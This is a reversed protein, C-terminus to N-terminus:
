GQGGDDSLRMAVDNFLAALTSRNAKDARLENSASDLKAMLDRVAFQIEDRLTKSQELLADHLERDSQSAHEQMEIARKDNAKGLERLEHSVEKLGDSRQTAESKLRDLLSQVERKIYAELSDLRKRTEDRLDSLDRSVRDEIRGFRRDHDRMQSGFLIDRVKALNEENPAQGDGNEAAKRSEESM